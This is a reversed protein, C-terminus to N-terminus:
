ISCYVANGQWNFHKKIKPHALYIRDLRSRNNPYSSGPVLKKNEQCLDSRLNNTLYPSESLVEASFWDAFSEPLQDAQVGIPPYELRNCMPNVKLGLALEKSLHRELIMKSMFRDDRKQAGVSKSTRICEVVKSFPNEGKFFAGWRCPDFVHGLEHSFVAFITEDNTYQLAELGMNIRNPVPDYAIGWSFVELPKKRFPSEALDGMWYLSVQSLREVIQKRAPKELDMQNVKTIALKHAQRFISEYRSKVSSGIYKRYFGEILNETMKNMKKDRSPYQRIVFNEAYYRRWKKIIEDESSSSLQRSQMWSTIVKSKGSILRSLTQDAQFAITKQNSFSVLANEKETRLNEMLVNLVPQGKCIPHTEALM